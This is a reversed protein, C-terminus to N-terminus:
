IQNSKSLCQRNQHEYRENELFDERNFFYNGQDNKVKLLWEWDVHESMYHDYEFGCTTSEFIEWIRRYNLRTVFEEYSNIKNVVYSDMIGFFEHTIWFLGNMLIKYKNEQGNRKLIQSYDYIHKTCNYYIGNFNGFINRIQLGIHQFDHDLYKNTGNFHSFHVDKESPTSTKESLIDFSALFAPLDKHFLEDVFRYFSFHRNEKPEPHAYIIFVPRAVSRGALVIDSKNILDCISSPLNESKNFKETINALLMNVSQFEASTLTKRTKLVNNWYNTLFTIYESKLEPSQNNKGKLFVHKHTLAIANTAIQYLGPLAMTTMSKLDSDSSLADGYIKRYQAIQEAANKHVYAHPLSNSSEQSLEIEMAHTSFLSQILWLSSLIIKIHKTM